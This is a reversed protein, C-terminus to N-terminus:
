SLMRWAADLGAKQLKTAKGPHRIMFDMTTTALASVLRGVYRIPADRLPGSASAQRILDYVPEAHEYAAERNAETVEDSTELLEQVRRKSRNTAGWSTWAMWLQEFRARKDEGTSVAAMVSDTLGITLELYLVNLLATKTEFYTFVSGHSVGARKAIAATPAGLGQEAVIDVAAALIANRRDESRPRAM